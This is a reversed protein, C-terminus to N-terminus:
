IFTKSNWDFERFTNSNIHKKKEFKINNDDVHKEYEEIQEMLCEPHEHIFTKSFMNQVVHHKMMEICEFHNNYIGYKELIHHIKNEVKLYFEDDWTEELKHKTKKHDSFFQIPQNLIFEERELYEKEEIEIDNIEEEDM